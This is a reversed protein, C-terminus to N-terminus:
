ELDDAGVVEGLARTCLAQLVISDPTFSGDPHDVPVSRLFRVSGDGFLFNSGGPHRSSFDDLGGDTDGTANNLHGHALAFAAAPYSAASNGPCPNQEGRQLVGRNVAGAWNGKANLWAREGVLVTCHTGDTLDTLRTRSNRYFVGMGTGAEVESEDGGCNAAYSSPAARTIMAGFADVIPFPETPPEDSPCLYLKIRSQIGTANRSDEIPLQIQLNRYVADQEIYPLLHASWAWGPTTDSAGDVHSMAATYGAPLRSYDNHYNHLAVGIQRLNSQCILRDAAARVKQIAPLLLALLLSVIALVVLLEILTFGKRLHSPRNM